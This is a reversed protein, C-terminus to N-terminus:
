WEANAGQTQQALQAQQAQYQELYKYFLAIAKKVDESYQSNIDAPESGASSTQLESPQEVAAAADDVAAQRKRQQKM